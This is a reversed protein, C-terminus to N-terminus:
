CPLGAQTLFAPPFAGYGRWAVGPGSERTGAGVGESSWRGAM